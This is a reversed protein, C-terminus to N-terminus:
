LDQLGQWNGGSICVHRVFMHKVRAGLRLGVNIRGRRPESYAILGIKGGMELGAARSM